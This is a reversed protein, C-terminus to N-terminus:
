DWSKKIKLKPGGYKEDKRFKENRELNQSNVHRLTRTLNWTKEYINEQKVPGDCRTKKRGM